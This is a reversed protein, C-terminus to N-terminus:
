DALNNKSHIVKVWVEALSFLFFTNMNTYRTGTARLFTVKNFVIM